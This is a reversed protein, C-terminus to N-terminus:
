VGPALLAKWAQLPNVTVEWEVSMEVRIVAVLM